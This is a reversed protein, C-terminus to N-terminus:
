DRWKLGKEDLRMAAADRPALTLGYDDVGARVQVEPRRVLERSKFGRYNVEHHVRSFKYVLKTVDPHARFLMESKAYTGENAYFEASNGGGLIQTKLKNQLFINFQITCWGAKLMDLSLITDENYRGRWRFETDNRILNCSYIRTNHVFPPHKAGPVAFMYYGPGAMSINSYRLVFDEMVRFCTGDGVRLRRNQHLRYFDRINDDMVWHWGSGASLAHDWIFNRAPGPGTSRTLGHEDLVEYRRKYSEDLVLLRSEPVGADRYSSWQSSEVVLLYPVGFTELRGATLRVKWRGKSPIYVPFQPLKRSM